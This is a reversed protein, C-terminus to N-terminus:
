LSVCTKRSIVGSGDADFEDFARRVARIAAVARGVLCQCPCRCRCRRRRRRQRRRRHRYRHSKPVVSTSSALLVALRWSPDSSDPPTLAGSRKRHIMAPWNRKRPYEPTREFMEHWASSKHHQERKGEQAAQWKEPLGAKWNGASGNPNSSALGPSPYSLAPKTNALTWICMSMSMSMTMHMHRLNHHVNRATRGCRRHISIKQASALAGSNLPLRPSSLGTRLAIPTSVTVRASNDVTAPSM